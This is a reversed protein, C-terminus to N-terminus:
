ILRHRVKWSRRYSPTVDGAYTPAHAHQAFAPLIFLCLPQARPFQHGQQGCNARRIFAVRRRCFSQICQERRFRFAHRIGGHEGLDEHGHNGLLQARKRRRAPRGGFSRSERGHRWDHRFGHLWPRGGDRVKNVVHNRLLPRKISRARASM